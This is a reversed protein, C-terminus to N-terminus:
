DMFLINGIRGGKQTELIEKGLDRSPRWTRVVIPFLGIAVDAGRDQVKKL